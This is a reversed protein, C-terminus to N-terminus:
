NRSLMLFTNRVTFEAQCCSLVQRPHMNTERLAESVCEFLVMEAEKRATALSINPPCAIIATCACKSSPGESLYLVRGWSAAISCSQTCAAQELEIKGQLAEPWVVEAM